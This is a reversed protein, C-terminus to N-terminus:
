RNVTRKATHVRPVYTAKEVCIEDLPAINLMDFRVDRGKSAAAANQPSANAAAVAWAFTTVVLEAAKVTVSSTGVAVVPPGDSRRPLTVRDFKAKLPPPVVNVICSAILLLVFAASNGEPRSVAKPKLVSGSAVLAESVLAIKSVNRSDLKGLKIVTSTHVEVPGVQAPPPPPSRAGPAVLVNVSVKFPSGAPVEDISRPASVIPAGSFKSKLHCVPIPENSLWHVNPLLQPVTTSAGSGALKANSPVAIVPNPTKM